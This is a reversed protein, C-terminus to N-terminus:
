KNIAQPVVPVSVVHVACVLAGARGANMSSQAYTLIGACSAHVAGLMSM